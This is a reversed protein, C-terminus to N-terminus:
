YKLVRNHAYRGKGHFKGKKFQDIYVGEGNESIFKGNGEFENDVFDGEYRNKLNSYM